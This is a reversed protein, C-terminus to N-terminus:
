FTKAIPTDSLWNYTGGKTGGVVAPDCSMETSVVTRSKIWAKSEDAIKMVLPMKAPDGSWEAALEVGLNFRIARMYGPPFSFQTVLDPFQSLVTWLYLALQVNTNPIPWMNINRQPFANDDYLKVPLASQINKVPIAQWGVDSLMELPLELPQAANNLSIIGARELKPYRSQDLITAGTGPGLQYTQVGSTLSYVNRLITYIMLRENMWSDIMQNLSALADTMDGSPLTDGASLVGILRMSSNIIDSSALLMGPFSSTSM